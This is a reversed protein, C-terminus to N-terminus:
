GILLGFVMQIGSLGNSLFSLLNIVIKVVQKLLKSIKVLIRM